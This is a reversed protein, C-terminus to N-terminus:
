LCPFWSVSHYLFKGQTVSRFFLPTVGKLVGSHKRGAAAQVVGGSGPSVEEPLLEMRTESQTLMRSNERYSREM